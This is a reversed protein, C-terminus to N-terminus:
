SVQSLLARGFVDARDSAALLALENLRALLTGVPTWGARIMQSPSMDLAELNRLGQFTLRDLPM